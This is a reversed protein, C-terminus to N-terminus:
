GKIGNKGEKEEIEELIILNFRENLDKKSIVVGHYKILYKVMTNIGYIVNNANNKSAM